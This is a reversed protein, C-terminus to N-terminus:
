IQSSYSCKQSGADVAEDEDEYYVFHALSSSHSDILDESLISYYCDVFLYYLMSVFLLYDMIVTQQCARRAQKCSGEVKSDSMPIM